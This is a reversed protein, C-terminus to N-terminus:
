HRPFSLPVSQCTKKAALDPGAQAVHYAAEPVFVHGTMILRATRKIAVSRVRMGENMQESQIAAEIIGAPHGIRILNPTERDKRVIRNVVSGELLAATATAIAGTVAYAKHMRGWTLIRSTLDMEETKLERNRGVVSYSQPRSVFALKLHIEKEIAKNGKITEVVFRSIQSLLDMASKKEGMEGPSETGKLGLDDASVFTYLNGADVVSVAIQKGDPSPFSDVVRGTPLLWGTIAGGPDTFRLTIEAGSGPVGDIRLNGKTQAMGGRVPIEAIILRRANTDHIRVVTIPEVAKLLKRDIAFPGVGAAINGCSLSYNVTASEIGVQAFTYTLDADPRDSRGVIALKSTLPDAGGLGDIQRPDPSGFISLIVQQRAEDEKPLYKEEIYVGKSTGGRIIACPIKRVGM